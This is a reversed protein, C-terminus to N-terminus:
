AELFPIKLLKRGANVKGCGGNKKLARFCKNQRPFPADYIEFRPRFRSIGYQNQRFFVNYHPSHKTKGFSYMQLFVFHFSEDCDNERCQHSECRDRQGGAGLGAVLTFAVRRLGIDLDAGDQDTIFVLAIGISMDLADLLSLLSAAKGIILDDIFVAYELIFGAVGGSDVEDLLAALDDECVGEAM